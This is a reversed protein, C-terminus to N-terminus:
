NSEDEPEWKNKITRVWESKGTDQSWRDLIQIQEIHGGSFPPCMGNNELFALILSAIEFKERGPSKIEMDKFYRGLLYVMDTRKM